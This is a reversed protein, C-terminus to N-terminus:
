LQYPGNLGRMAEANAGVMGGINQLGRKGSNLLSFVGPLEYGGGGGFAQGQSAAPIASYGSGTPSSTPSGTPDESANSPSFSSGFGHTWSGQNRLANAQFQALPVPM